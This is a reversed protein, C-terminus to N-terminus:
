VVSKRDELVERRQGGPEGLLARINEQHDIVIVDGREEEIMVRRERESHSRFPMDGIFAGTRAIQGRDLAMGREGRVDSMRQHGVLEVHGEELVLREIM